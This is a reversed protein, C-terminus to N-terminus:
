YQHDLDGFPIRDTADMVRLIAEYDKQYAPDAQLVATSKSNQAKVWELPKAGHVDELWLYPDDSDAPHVGKVVSNAGSAAACVVVGMVSAVVVCRRVSM